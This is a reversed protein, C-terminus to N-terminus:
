YFLFYRLKLPILEVWLSEEIIQISKIILSTLTMIAFYYESEAYYALISFIM